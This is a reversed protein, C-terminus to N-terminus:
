FVLLFIILMSVYNKEMLTHSWGDYTVGEHQKIM